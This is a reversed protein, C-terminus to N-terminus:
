DRKGSKRSTKDLIPQTNKYKVNGKVPSDMEEVKCQVQTERKWTKYDIFKCRHNKNSM